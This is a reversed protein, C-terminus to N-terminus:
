WDLTLAPSHILLQCSSDDKWIFFWQTIVVGLLVWFLWVFSIAFAQSQRSTALCLATQRMIAILLDGLRNTPEFCNNKVDLFLIFVDIWKGKFNLETFSIKAFRTCKCCFLKCLINFVRYFLKAIWFYSVSFMVYTLWKGINTMAFKYM